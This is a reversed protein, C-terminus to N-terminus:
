LFLNTSCRDDVVTCLNYKKCVKAAVKKLKGQFSLRKPRCSAFNELFVVKNGLRYPKFYM